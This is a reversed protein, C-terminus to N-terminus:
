VAVGSILSTEAGLLSRNTAIWTKRYSFDEKPNGNQEIHDQNVCADIVGKLDELHLGAAPDAQIDAGFPL